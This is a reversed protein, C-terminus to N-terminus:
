ASGSSWPEPWGPERGGTLARMRALVDVGLSAYVDLLDVLVWNEEILGDRVRWFDLSRMTLAQGAAPMGLWGGGSLTMRMGPWATFGVYDGAAFLHGGAPDGTRDPMAALFPAQHHARFGGIGRSTGVGSPGYWTCAPHWYRELGMAAVGETSRGLATLMAGVVGLAASGDGHPGRGDQTAPGPVNLERGLSPAMPWCGAQMMLEPLDWLAQVEACREGEMRLFEHFRLHALRRTPPIGLFSGEWQGVYAGCCGIWRAGAATVGEIRITERRELDPVAARLPGLAADWWGAGGDLDEFPHCLRVGDLADELAVQAGAMGPRAMRALATEIM